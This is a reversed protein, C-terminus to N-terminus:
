KGHTIKAELQAGCNLGAAHVVKQLAEEFDAPCPKNLRIAVIATAPEQGEEIVFASDRMFTNILIIHMLDRIAERSWQRNPRFPLQPKISRPQRELRVEVPDVKHADCAYWILASIAWITGGQKGVCRGHDERAVRVSFVKPSEDLLEIQIANPERCLAELLKRLLSAIVQHVENM